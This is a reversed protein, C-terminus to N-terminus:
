CSYSLAAAKTVQQVYQNEIIGMVGWSGYMSESVQAWNSQVQASAKLISVPVSFEAAADNFYKNMTAVDPHPRNLFSRLMADKHNHGFDNQSAPVDPAKIINAQLYDTMDRQLFVEGNPETTKKIPSHLYKNALAILETDTKFSPQEQGLAKHMNSFSCFCILALSTLLSNKRM